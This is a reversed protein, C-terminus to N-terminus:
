TSSRACSTRCSDCEAPVDVVNLPVGAARAALKAAAGDPGHDAVFCLAAGDLDAAEFPRAVVTVALASFDAEITRCVVVVSATTKTVLRAKGLAEDGGGVIVIRQGEVKYSVPFTKLEGM